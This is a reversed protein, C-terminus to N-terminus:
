QCAMRRVLWHTPGSAALGIGSAYLVGAADSSLKTHYVGAEFGFDDIPDWSAGGDTSRRTIWRPKGSFTETGIVTIAGSGDQWPAGASPNGSSTYDDLTAFTQSSASTGRVTWHQNLNGAVIVREGAYIGSASGPSQDDLTSWTGSADRRRVVWHSVDAADNCNGSAYVAGGADIALGRPFCLKGAALQFDLDNVWSAGADASRRVLWRVGESSGTNGLAFITGSPDIEISGAYSPFGTEYQFAEVIEWSTGGDTSKRVVRETEGAITRSGIVYVVGAADIAIDSAGASDATVGGVAPTYDDV